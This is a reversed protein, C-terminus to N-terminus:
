SVQGAHHLYTKCTEYILESIKSCPNIFPLNKLHTYMWLGFLLGLVCVVLGSMLLTSGPIGGLFTAQDFDPLILNAEGGAHRVPETAQGFTCMAFLALLLAISLVRAFRAKPTRVTSVVAPVIFSLNRLLSHSPM